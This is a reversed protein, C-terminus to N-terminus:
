RRATLAYLEYVGGFDRPTPLKNLFDNLAQLTALPHHPDNNDMLFEVGSRYVLIHTIGQEKWHALISASDGYTAVDSIWRDLNEDPLCAPQCYLNRPEYILQTLSGEPLSTVAQMAPEYWGLNDSLYQQESTLGLAAHQAGQRVSALNVELTNFGIVLIVLAAFIRELRLKPQSIGEIGRYGFAALVAFAPFLSYYLRTQILYGSLRNGAAWIVLGAVAIVAANQQTARQEESLNRFGLWALVGFGLLLPGVSVGYGAGGEVGMVTARVPLLFFDLWNGYPPTGQFVAVRAADMAGSAFFFPYVPNGTTIWNKILWPLAFVAAALGFQLLAPFFASRRKWIHWALAILAALVLAGATYKTSFALGAFAGALLLNLRQSDQRWFDLSILCGLGFFLGLWDSYAWAPSIMLTYGALLAGTGVWAPNIGLRQRLYGILGVAALLGFSWSLVTAGQRGALAIAWTYLMEASQPHGSTSQWPLYIVKGLRLYTEPLSLHYALADFKIPPALAITIGALMGLGLLVGLARAFGGSEQWIEGLSAWQRMWALISRRLLFAIVPLVAFFLWRPIGFSVGALLVCLAFVGLGFGAQLSLRALPHLTTLPAIRRGLGGALTVLIAAAVIRWVLLGFDVASQPTFPKHTLYYAALATFPVLLGILALLLPSLKKM